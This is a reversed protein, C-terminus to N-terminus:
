HVFEHIHVNNDVLNIVEDIGGRGFEPTMTADQWILFSPIPLGQAGELEDAYM